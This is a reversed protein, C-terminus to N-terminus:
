HIGRGLLILLFPLAVGVYLLGMYVGQVKGEVFEVASGVRSQKLLHNKSRGMIILSAPVSLVLAIVWYPFNSVYMLLSVGWLFLFLAAAGFVMLATLRILYGLFGDVDLAFYVAILSVAFVLAVLSVRNKEVQVFCGCLLFSWFVIDIPNM